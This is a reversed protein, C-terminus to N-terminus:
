VEPMLKSGYLTGGMGRLWRWRPAAGENIVLDGASVEDSKVDKHNIEIRDNLFDVGLVRIDRNLGITVLGRLRNSLTLAYM